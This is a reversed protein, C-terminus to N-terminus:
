RSESIVELDHVIREQTIDGNHWMVRVMETNLAEIVIGPVIEDDNLAPHYWKVLDGVKM